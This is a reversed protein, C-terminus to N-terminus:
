ILSYTLHQVGNPLSDASVLQLHLPTDAGDFLRMGQRLVIPDLFIHLENLLHADILQRVISVSGSLAIDGGSSAKLATVGEILDGELQESNRWTMDLPQHSVVVKRADGLTKAFGDDGAAEREPWAAAMTDYTTRGFLLTDAQALGAALAAGLEDSFYPEHWNEPAEVVGDLSMFYTATTKRM